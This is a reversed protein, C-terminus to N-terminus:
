PPPTVVGDKGFSAAWDYFEQDRVDQYIATEPSSDLDAQYARDLRPNRGAAVMMTHPIITKVGLDDLKRRLEEARHFDGSYKSWSHLRVAITDEGMGLIIGGDATIRAYQIRTLSIANFAGVTGDELSGPAWIVADDSLIFLSKTAASFKNQEVSSLNDYREYAGATSRRVVDANTVFQISDEEIGSLASVAAGHEEVTLATSSCGALGVLIGLCFSSVLGRM